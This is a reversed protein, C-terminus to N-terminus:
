ELPAEAALVRSRQLLLEIGERVDMQEVEISQAIGEVAPDRTTLLLHGRQSTPLFDPVIELDDANDLILLWDQQRIFVHKVADVMRTQDQKDQETLQLLDAITVYDSILTDHAAARVWLVAQYEHQYRYAYEVATQTKGIGGLGHIAFMQTLAVAKSGTLQEHLSRLLMERGT